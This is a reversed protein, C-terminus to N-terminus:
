TQKIYNCYAGHGQSSHLTAGVLGWQFRGGLTTPLTHSHQFIPENRSGNGCGREEQQLNCLFSQYECTKLWKYSTYVLNLCYPWSKWLTPTSFPKWFCCLLTCSIKCLCQLSSLPFWALVVSPKKGDSDLFLREQMRPEQMRCILLSYIKTETHQCAQTHKPLLAATSVYQLSWLGHYRRWQSGVGSRGHRQALWGWSWRHAHYLLSTVRWWWWVGEVLQMEEKPVWHGKKGRLDWHQCYCISNTGARQILAVLAEERRSGALSLPLHAGEDVVNFCRVARGLMCM